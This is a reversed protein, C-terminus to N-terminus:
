PSQAAWFQGTGLLRFSDHEHEGHEDEDDSLTGKNKQGDRDFTLSRRRPRVSPRARLFFFSSLLVILSAAIAGCIKM